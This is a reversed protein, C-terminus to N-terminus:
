ASPGRRSNGEHRGGHHHNRVHRERAHSRHRDNRLTDAQHQPHLDAAAASHARDRVDARAFLGGSCAGRDEAMLQSAGIGATNVVTDAYVDGDRMTVGAVRDGRKILSSVQAGTHIDAGFQRAAKAFAWVVSPPTVHADVPCYIASTVADSVAPEIERIQARDLLQCPVGCAQLGLARERGRAREKKATSRISAAPFMWIWRHAM